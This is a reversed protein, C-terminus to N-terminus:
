NIAHVEKVQPFHHKLLNEIGQKLTATSSPCGVCAGRLTLYVIGNEFNEFIIDGGDQAVAPRVKKDIIDKIQESIKNRVKNDKKNDKISKDFNIENTNFFEILFTLVKPKVSGWTIEEKKTISIFNKGIFFSKIGSIGFLEDTFKNAGADKVSNFQIGGTSTLEKNVKFKLTEPNPTIETEINM